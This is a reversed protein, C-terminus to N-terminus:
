APAPALVSGQVGDPAPTEDPEAAPKESAEEKPSIEALIKADMFKKGGGDRRVGADKTAKAVIAALDGEPDAAARGKAEELAKQYKEACMALHKERNARMVRGCTPCPEIEAGAAKKKPKAEVAEGAAEGAAEAKLADVEAEAAKTRAAMDSEIQRAPEEDSYWDTLKEETARGGNEIAKRCTRTADACFGVGDAAVLLGVGGLNLTGQILRLGLEVTFVPLELAVVGTVLGVRGTVGVAKKGTRKVNM